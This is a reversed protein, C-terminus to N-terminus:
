LCHNMTIPYKPRQNQTIPLMANAISPHHTRMIKIIGDLRQVLGLKRVEVLYGVWSKMVNKKSYGEETKTFFEDLINKVANIEDETRANILRCLKKLDPELPNESLIYIDILMNYAGHELLSLHATDAKYDKIHKNYYHM